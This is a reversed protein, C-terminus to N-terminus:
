EGKAHLADLVERAKYELEEINIHGEVIRKMVWVAAAIVKDRSATHASITEISYGLLVKWEHSDREVEHGRLMILEAIEKPTM